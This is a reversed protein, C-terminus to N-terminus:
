SMHRLKNNEYWAGQRQREGKGREKRKQPPFPYIGCTFNQSEFQKKNWLDDEHRALM